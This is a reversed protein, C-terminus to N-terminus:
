LAPIRDVLRAARFTRPEFPFAIRMQDIGHQHVRLSPVALAGAVVGVICEPDPFFIRVAITRECGYALGIESECVLFQLLQVLEDAIVGHFPESRHARHSGILIEPKHQLDRKFSQLARCAM